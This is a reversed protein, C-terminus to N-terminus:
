GQYKNVVLWNLLPVTGWFCLIFSLPSVRKMAVSTGRGHYVIVEFGFLRLGDWRATLEEAKSNIDSPRGNDSGTYILQTQEAVLMSGM